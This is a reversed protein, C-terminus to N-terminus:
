RQATYRPGIGSGKARRSGGPEKGKKRASGKKKQGISTKKGAGMVGSTASETATGLELAKGIATEFVQNVNIQEKASAEIFHWNGGKEQLVKCLQEAEDNSVVRDEDVFECKNGVLVFPLQEARPNARFIQDRFANIEEFSFDFM